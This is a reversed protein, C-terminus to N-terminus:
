APRYAHPPLLQRIQSLGYDQWLTPDVRPWRTWGLPGFTWWALECRDCDCTSRHDAKTQNCPYCCAVVNSIKSKSILAPNFRYREDM